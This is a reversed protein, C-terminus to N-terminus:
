INDLESFACVIMISEGGSCTTLFDIFVVWESLGKSCFTPFDVGKDDDCSTYMTSDM